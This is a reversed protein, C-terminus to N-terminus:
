FSANLGFVIQKTMPYYNSGGREPDYDNFSSFTFYNKLTGYLRLQSIKCPALLTKPFNYGLTVDKIKVFSGDRYGLTSYYLMSEDKNFNPRPYANTSHEPTWYDTVSSNAWGSPHFNQAADSKIMQGIRAYIFFSFEIGKYEFNNNLGGTWKPTQQGIIIRDKTADIKGNGDKDWVKIDGPVQGYKAAETAESTQWIGLKKYDYYVHTPSGIFWGSAVDDQNSNLATIKEKNASFTISSNWKFTSTNFNITNISIDIGQTETKGVNGIVSTFGTHGPLIMPLLLDNTWTKYADITAYIRNNLIGFDLGLNFVSTKEWKLDKNSLSYPRYGYAATEDWAYITKSLGGSTQYPSVASNGSLGYSVRLKLDSIEKVTKLFSEDKIRWAAALSPFYGWKNGDALVSSGDTRLTATLLYKDMLKYNLRAFYSLMSSETLSSKIVFDQQLGDLNHFLSQEFSLGKGEAYTDEYSNKSMSHGLLATISHVGIDKSYTLTNEWTLAASQTVTKSAFAMGKNGGVFTSNAGQFIGNRNNQTDYGMTSRFTLGKVIEANLYATGFFRNNKTENVYNAKDQNMMINIATSGSGTFPYKNVTGDTNYPVGYPDMTQASGFVNSSVSNQVSNTYFASAGAEIGKAIRQSLNFRGKYRKLDEGKLVGTEDSYNLSMVAKTAETGGSVSLQYDQTLANGFIIDYWNTNVGNKIRDLAVADWISADDASSSWKGVARMAERRFAVNEQTNNPRPLNTVSSPGLYTNFEVKPKGEKGKKTTVIIVGNAGRSGYIATASADKLVEMSEVDNPNITMDSGYAIGDVLILPSNSATLSRNGRITFNLPNGLAGSASVLDMGAIKGQLSELVNGTPVATIDKSKISSISGTLDRKKIVGYGVVVLEDLYKNDDVLKVELKTKGDISIQQTKYGIYSIVITSASGVDEFSFKGSIDTVTGKKTDKIFVSAGIIPESNQDLVLGSINQIKQTTSTKQISKQSVIINKGKIEYVVDQKQLIQKLVEEITKNNASVSIIKRTDLDNAEYVFSYGTKEKLLEIAEKVTTNSIKFTIKQSYVSTSLCCLLLTMLIVQIKKRM